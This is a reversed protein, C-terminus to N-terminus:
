AMAVTRSMEIMNTGDSVFNITFTRATVTGTALTGTTKFGSGFTITFSTTGSTVIIISAMTGAPAATTTYSTTATPTVKVVNYTNLQMATAGNALLLYGGRVQKAATVNQGASINGSTGSTAIAEINGSACLIRQSVSLGGNGSSGTITINGDLATLSSGSIAGPINVVGTSPNIRINNSTYLSESTASV